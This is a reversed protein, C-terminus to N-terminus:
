DNYQPIMGEPIDELTIKTNPDSTYRWGGYPNGGTRGYVVDWSKEHEKADVLNMMGWHIVFIEKHVVIAKRNNPTVKPANTTPAAYLCTTNRLNYLKERKSNCHVGDTRFKTKDGWLNVFRFTIVDVDEKIAEQIKAISNTELTEDVDLQIAWDFGQKVLIDLPRQKCKEGYFSGPDDDEYGGVYNPLLQFRFKTANCCHDFNVAFPLNLRKLEQLFRNFHIYDGDFTSFLIGIKNGM